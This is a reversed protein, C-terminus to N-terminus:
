FYVFPFYLNFHYWVSITDYITKSPLFLKNDFRHGYKWCNKKLTSLWIRHTPSFFLILYALISQNCIYSKNVEGPSYGLRSWRMEMVDSTHHWWRIELWTKRQFAPRDMHMSIEVGCLIPPSWIYRLWYNGIVFDTRLDTSDM